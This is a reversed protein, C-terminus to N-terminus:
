RPLPAGASPGPTQIFAATVTFGVAVVDGRSGALLLDGLPMPYGMSVLDQVFAERQRAILIHDGEQLPEIAADEGKLQVTRHTSPLTVVLAIRGNARFDALMAGSHSALLFVTVRTRDSSIRVGLGRSLNAVNRADRSAAHMSVGGQMFAVLETDLTVPHTSDPM